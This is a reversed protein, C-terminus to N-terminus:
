LLIERVKQWGCFGRPDKDEFVYDFWIKRSPKGLKFIEPFMEGLGSYHDNVADFEIGHLKCHEVAEDLYHVTRNTWLIFIYGAKKLDHITELAEPMWKGINPFDDEVMTGDFDFALIKNM